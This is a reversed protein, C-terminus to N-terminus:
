MLQQRGDTGATSSRRCASPGCRPPREDGKVADFERVVLDAPRQGGRLLQRGIGLDQIQIAVLEVTPPDGEAKGGRVYRIGLGFITEPEAGALLAGCSNSRWMIFVHMPDVGLKCNTGCRGVRSGAGGGAPVSGASQAENGKWYRWGM